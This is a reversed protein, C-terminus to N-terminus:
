LDFMIWTPAHDSANEQGRAAWRDVGDVLRVSLNPSLLFHDLRMQVLRYIVQERHEGSRDQNWRNTHLSRLARGFVTGFM